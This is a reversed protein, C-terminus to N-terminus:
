LEVYECQRIYIPVIGFLYWGEFRINARKGIIGVKVHINKYWTRYVIM